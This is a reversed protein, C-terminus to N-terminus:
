IKALLDVKLSKKGESSVEIGQFKAYNAVVGDDLDLSIRQHAIHAIAQDYIRTEALQKVLKEKQKVAKAKDSAPADSELIVNCNAITNEIAAQSKHLYDARIRGVTDDNYRHLYILAKFGNEKGSDFLWYIPRKQYTKVHDKYFDKLFYNRIVELSTSGKNGFANAIFDLNEEITDEGYVVKVFRVFRSVIDDDFYEEDTIPIVNDKDPFVTRYKSADWEGGAYAIGDVDLSYRGLMCGIAYSVFSRIDRELDAKRITVDRDGVEPTLEEQLGYIGIFISNLEEENEKLQNFQNETFQRWKAFCDSIKTKNQVFPHKIFDWSTEFNDWDIKSILINNSVLEDVNSKDKESLLYPLESINGKQFNLTPNM